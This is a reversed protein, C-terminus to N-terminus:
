LRFGEVGNPNPVVQSSMAPDGSSLKEEFHHFFAMLDEALEKRDNRVVAEVQDFANLMETKLSDPDDNSMHPENEAPALEVMGLVAGFSSAGWAITSLAAAGAGASVPASAAAAIVTLWGVVAKFEGSRDTGNALAAGATQVMGDVHSRIKLMIAYDLHASNALAYAMEAQNMTSTKLHDSYNTRIADGADDNWEEFRDVVIHMKAHDYATEYRAALDQMDVSLDELQAENKDMLLDIRENIQDIWEEASAACWALLEQDEAETMSTRFPLILEDKAPSPNGGPYKEDFFGKYRVSIYRDRVLEHLDKVMSELKWRDPPPAEFMSEFNEFSTMM